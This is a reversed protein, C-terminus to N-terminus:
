CFRSVLDRQVEYLHDSNGLPWHQLCGVNKIANRIAQVVLSSQQSINTSTLVCGEETGVRREVDSSGEKGVSVDCGERRGVHLRQPLCMRTTAHLLTLEGM